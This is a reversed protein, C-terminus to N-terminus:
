FLDSLILFVIITIFMGEPFYMLVLLLVRETTGQAEFLASMHSFHKRASPEYIVIEILLL